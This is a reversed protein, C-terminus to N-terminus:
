KVEKNIRDAEKQQFYKLVFKPDSHHTIKSVILPDIKDERILKTIRAYRLTHTNVGILSRCSVKANEISIRTLPPLSRKIYEPWIFERFEPPKPIKRGKSDLVFVRRGSIPNIRTKYLGKKRVKVQVTLLAPDQEFQGLADHAESVRAQNRLQIAYILLKTYRISNKRNAALAEKIRRQLEAYPVGSDWDVPM